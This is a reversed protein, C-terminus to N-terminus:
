NKVVIEVRRNKQRGKETENTAVPNEEGKALVSIQDGGVDSNEKIYEAVARAREEALQKNYAESGIADTYGRVAIEGDPHRKEVSNIVEELKEEGTNRIEAKDFDFLVREEVAYVSFSDTGRVEIEESKIEEYKVIPSTVDVESWETKSRTQPDVNEDEKLYMTEDKSTDIKEKETKSCAALSLIYIFIIFVQIAKM